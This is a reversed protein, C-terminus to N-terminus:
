STVDERHSLNVTKIFEDLAEASFHIDNEMTILHCNPLMKSTIEATIFPVTNDFRSHQMYVHQKMDSLSFGWGLCRIKLDLAIGFCDNMMSDHIENRHLDQETVGSFFYERALKQLDAISANKDIPYPWHSTVEGNYLAPIGSFIYINRARDPFRHGIAYSYPAGSSMGLVDFQDLHLEDVIVAVLDGWEAINSMVRPSSEGYGPRAMCIVRAGSRELRQFIRHDKISAILGHQILVPYGNKDGYEAIALSSGAEPLALHQM